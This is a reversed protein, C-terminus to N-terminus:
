LKDCLKKYINTAGKTDKCKFIIDKYKEKKGIKEYLKAMKYYIKTYDNPSIKRINELANKLYRLAKVYNDDLQAEKSLELEVFPSYIYAKMSKQKEYLKYLIDLAKTEKKNEQLFLYYQYYFDIIMPNNDNIQIYEPHKDTYRFFQKISLTNNLKGYIIFRYLFEKQKIKNDNLMDIKQIYEYADDVKNLLLAIKELAFYVNSDKTKELAEKVIKYLRIDPTESLCDFFKDRGSKNKILNKISGYNVLYLVESLEVCENNNLYFKIMQMDIEDFIESTTKYGFRQATTNSIDKYVKKIKQIYGYKKEKAYNLLEQLLAKQSMSELDYYREAVKSPILKGERMLIEDLAIIVEKYYIVKKKRALLDKYLEKAKSMYKTNKGAIRMYTNALKFKFKDISKPEIAKNLLMKLIKIAFEPMNAKILKDVKKLALYSDNAYYQINKSLVKQVLNYAKKDQKDLIYVDYLEDAVVTAVKIDKTKVLIKYLVRIAKKYQRQHIDIQALAIKGFAKSMPDDFTEGISKAYYVADKPKNIKLNLLVLLKYAELLDEQHLTSNNIFKELIIVAKRGNITGSKKYLIDSYILIATSDLLKIKNIKRFKLINKYADELQGERILRKITELKYNGSLINKKDYESIQSKDSKIFSYYFDKSNLNIVLILCILLIKNL